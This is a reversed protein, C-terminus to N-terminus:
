VTIDTCETSVNSLGEDSARMELHRLYTSAKDLGVVAGSPSMDKALDITTFGPGSGLDLVKMRSTLGAETWLRRTDALWARHQEQLRDLERESVGVFYNEAM